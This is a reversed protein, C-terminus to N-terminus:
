IDRGLIWLWIVQVVRSRSAWFIQKNGFRKTIVCSACVTPAGFKVWINLYKVLWCCYYCIIMFYLTWCIISTWLFLLLHSIWFSNLGGKKILTILFYLLPLWLLWFLATTPSAKAICIRKSSACLSVWELNMTVLVTTILDQKTMAFLKTYTISTSITQWKKM